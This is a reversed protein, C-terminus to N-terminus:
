KILLTSLLGEYDNPTYQSGRDSHFIVNKEIGRNVLAKNFADIVLEDTMHLGYSWGVVKLNFLDLWNRVYLYYKGTQTLLLSTKNWYTLINRLRM